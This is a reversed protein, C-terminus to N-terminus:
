SRDLQHKGRGPRQGVVVGYALLLLGLIGVGLEGLVLLVPVAARGPRVAQGNRELVQVTGTPADEFLFRHLVAEHGDPMTIGSECILEKRRCDSMVSADNTAASSRGQWATMVIQNWGLAGHIVLVALALAMVLIARHDEHTAARQKALQKRKSPEEPTTPEAM